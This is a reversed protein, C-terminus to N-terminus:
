ADRHQGRSAHLHVMPFVRDGPVALFAAHTCSQVFCGYMCVHVCCIVGAAVVVAAAAASVVATAVASACAVASVFTGSADKCTACGPLPMAKVADLAMGMAKRIVWASEECFGCLQVDATWAGSGAIGCPLKGIEGAYIGRVATNCEACSEPLGAIAAASVPPVPAFTADSLKFEM